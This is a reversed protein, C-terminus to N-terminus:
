EKSYSKDQQTFCDFPKFQSQMEVSFWVATAKSIIKLIRAM